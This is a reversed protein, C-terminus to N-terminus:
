ALLLEQAHSKYFGTDIRHNRGIRWQQLLESSAIDQHLRKVAVPVIAPSRDKKPFLKGAKHMVSLLPTRPAFTFVISHQTRAAIKELASVMDVPEYHILSDMAVVYDFHGLTKNLMDGSKFVISGKLVKRNLRVEAMKVLKPSLDIAVVDAGCRAAETALLGTGCGADLIRCGTLDKPLWSLLTHQTERRGERVTARIRSVPADSTLKKWAEVATEDFYTAIEGRRNEYQQEAIPSTM